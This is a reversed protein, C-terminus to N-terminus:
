ELEPVRSHHMKKEKKKKKRVMIVKHSRSELETELLLHETASANVLHSSQSHRSDRCSESPASCVSHGNAPNM